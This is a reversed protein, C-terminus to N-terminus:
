NNNRLAKGAKVGTFEQNEIGMKGNIIVYDMGSALNSPDDFTAHDKVENPNFLILDAYYGEKIKGRHKISLSEAVLHTQSYLLFPLDIIKEQTYYKRMKRSFSGYKRPHGPTGDSGTMVWDKTMFAEIDEDTMNYSVVRIEKDNELSRIVTGVPDLEWKQSIEMLNLGNLATDEASSYVLTEAGGRRRINEKIGLNLSDKLAPDKFREIMKEYGGDEAWRPIVAAILNTRSAPYPYQNATVKLNRAQAQEIIQIVEASKGWVDKGLAKIHSIHVPINAKEAIELVEEVSRILGISYSSEDRLHTDYIGNYKSVIKSLEIVENQDAYSGPSYFLGTSIGFAGEEMANKVLFRMEELEKETALKDDLGMIKKRVSGHGVFLGANTGIGNKEWEELKESIPLPSTGDNGTFVTTVGQMLYPLNASRVENSLDFSLHTHPDIFGPSLILGEAKIEKKAKYNKGADGIFVIKEGKIGVDLNQLGQDKDIFVDAGTILIDFEEEQACSGMPISFILLIFFHKVPLKLIKRKM